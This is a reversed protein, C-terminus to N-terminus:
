VAQVEHAKERKSPCERNVCLRWPRRGTAVYVEPWGCHRCAKNAARLVGRQPLPASAKCGSGYNTCGVFRKGTKKSKVVKLVGNKCVPCPGLASGFTRGAIASSLEKGLSEDASHLQELQLAVTRVTNRLLEKDKEEGSEVKELDRETTRTLGTSLIAPAEREMVEVLLLGLDSAVISDGSAYGRDIVTNIIGARTVKTGIGEREMKELLTSQNYRRPGTGLIEKVGISSVRLSDDEALTASEVEKTQSYKGYYGTWGLKLMKTGGVFFKHGAVSIEASTFEKKAPPGFAALFRRVVLDFVSYESSSLRRGPTEGTPFIAPHAADTKTGKVPTLPGRLIAGVPTSYGVIRSLGRLIVAYGISPPLEQSGTRPYSILARLYLREAIQMTRNPPLRFVRYAERQLDGINFAPPPPVNVTSTRVSTVSGERHDCDRAIQEAERKTEFREKSYKAPIRRGQVEFVAEVRWHPVPVFLGIERERSVLFNLTPGQVRGITLTRYGDGESVVSQSLLRSLNVGWTFDVLHRARGARALTDKQQPEANRFAEVLEDRTLTSFRARLASEERGGCAYRMVNFGITEGEADNDCANILRGAGKALNGIVAIRRAIPGGKEEVLDSSYWQADFIPYVSRDGFPDSISYIHGSASSAVYDEDDFEFRFVAVGDLFSTTFRGGSLAEAVRRAADPKECIM